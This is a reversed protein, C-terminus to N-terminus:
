SMKHPEEPEYLARRGKEAKAFESRDDKYAGMEQM